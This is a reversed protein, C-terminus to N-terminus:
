GHIRTVRGDGTFREDDAPSDSRDSGAVLRMVALALSSAAAWCAADILVTMKGPAFVVVNLMDGAITYDRVTGVVTVAGLFVVLSRRGWRRGVRWGILALLAFVLVVLPYMLRPGYATDIGPYRWVGLRHMVIEVGVGVVAVATGGALAGCVRRPTARTFHVAAILLTLYIGLALSLISTTMVSGAQPGRTVVRITGGANDAKVVKVQCSCYM